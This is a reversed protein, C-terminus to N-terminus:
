ASKTHGAAAGCQGTAVGAGWAGGRVLMYAIVGLSWCDCAMTYGRNGTEAQNLVEPAIYYPTGVMTHMRRLTSGYKSSLGFDILKVNSSEDRSEFIFNELKLDRHSVGMFHCYGIAACMKFMLRAAEAESYRNGKQQHLRDFLEGGDCFELILYINDPDEYYEYQLTHAALIPCHPTGLTPPSRSGRADSESLPLAQAVRPVQAGREGSRAGAVAAALLLGARLLLPPRGAGAGAGRVLKIVNPHDLMKLLEIENRLDDILEVDIRRMEMCKLAYKEGTGKHAVQLRM